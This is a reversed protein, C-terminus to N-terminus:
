ARGRRERLKNLYAEFRLADPPTLQTEFDAYLHSRDARLGSVARHEPAPAGSPPASTEWFGLPQGLAAQRALSETTHRAPRRGDPELRPRAKATKEIKLDRFITQAAEHCEQARVNEGLEAYALSLNDLTGAESKRDGVARALELRESYVEVARSTAGLASYALGLRGLVEGEAKNNGLERCIMLAAEHRDIESAALREPSPSPTAGPPLSSFSEHPPTVAEEALDRLDWPAATPLRRARVFSAARMALLSLIAVSLSAGLALLRFDDQSM